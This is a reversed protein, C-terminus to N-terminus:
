QRGSREQAFASLLDAPKIVTVTMKKRKPYHKINGTVLYRAKGAIAVELFKEDDADPLALTLPRAAVPLGSAKIEDMLNEVHEADFDFKEHRLVKRYEDLIRADYCLVIDGAAVMRVIQGPPGHPNLLGSVLVNTDLVIMM